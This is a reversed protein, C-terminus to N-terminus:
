EEGRVIHEDQVAWYPLELQGREITALEGNIWVQQSPHRAKSYAFTLAEERNDFTEYSETNQTDNITKWFVFFKGSEHDTLDRVHIDSVADTM